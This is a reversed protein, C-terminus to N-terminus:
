IVTVLSLSNPQHFFPWDLRFHPIDSSLFKSEGIEVVGFTSMEPGNPLNILSRGEGLVLSPIKAAHADRGHPAYFWVEEDPNKIGHIM